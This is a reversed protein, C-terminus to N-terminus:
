LSGPTVDGPDLFTDTAEARTYPTSMDDKVGKVFDQPHRPEYDYECVMLGDWTKKLESGKYKHGCRDCIANFDHPKWYDAKGM